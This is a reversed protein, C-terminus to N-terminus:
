HHSEEVLKYYEREGGIFKIIRIGMGAIKKVIHVLHPPVIKAWIVRGQFIAVSNDPLSLEINLVTKPPFVKNSKLFVGEESIDVTFGHYIPEAEGFVANLRRSRRKIARKEVVYKREREFVAGLLLISCCPANTDSAVARTM